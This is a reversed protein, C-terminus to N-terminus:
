LHLSARPILGLENGHERFTSQRHYNLKKTTTKTSIISSVVFFSLLPTIIRKM